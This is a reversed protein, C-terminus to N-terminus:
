LTNTKFKSGDLNVHGLLATGGEMASLLSQKFCKNFFEHKDKRFDSLVRFNPCNYHSIFMFGFDDDCKKEIECSNFAGQSYAYILIGTIARPHYTKQGRVSFQEVVSSTDIQLFIEKYVIFRHDAPILDFINTAFLARKNFEM